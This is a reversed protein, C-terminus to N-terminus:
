PEIPFGIMLEFCFCISICSYMPQQHQTQIDNELFVPLFSTLSGTLWLLLLIQTSMNHPYSSLESSTHRKTISTVYIQNLVIRIVVAHKEAYKITVVNLIM